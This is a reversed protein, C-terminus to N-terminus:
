TGDVSVGEGYPEVWLVFGYFCSHPDNRGGEHRGQYTEYRTRFGAPRVATVSAGRLQDQLELLARTAHSATYAM